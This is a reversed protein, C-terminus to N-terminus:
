LIVQIALARLGQLLAPVVVMLGCTVLLGFCGHKTNAQKCMTMVWQLPMVKGRLSPFKETFSSLDDEILARRQVITQAHRFLHNKDLYRNLLDTEYISFVPLNSLDVRGIALQVEPLSDEDFKGDGPLNRTEPRYLPNPSSTIIDTWNSNMAGYNGM